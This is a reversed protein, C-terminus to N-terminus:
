KGGTVWDRLVAQMDEPVDRFLPTGTKRGWSDLDRVEGVQLKLVREADHDSSNFNLAYVKMTTKNKDVTM